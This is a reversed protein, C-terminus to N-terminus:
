DNTAYVWFVSELEVNLMLLETEPSYITTRGLNDKLKKLPQRSQVNHGIHATQKSAKAAESSAIAKDWDSKSIIEKTSYLKTETIYLQIASRQFPM